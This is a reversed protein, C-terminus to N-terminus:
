KKRNIAGLVILAQGLLYTSMILLRPQPINLESFRSLAIMSDSFIFLIIGIFILYVSVISIRKWLFFATIAMTTIVLSYILIPIQLIGLGDWLYANLFFAYLSLPILPFLLKKYDGKYEFFAAIYFIHTCLFLLLGPLFLKNDPRALMLVTDGGFAFVLGILLYWDFRAAQKRFNMFYFLGLIPMLLPKTAYILNQGLGFEASLNLISLLCYLVFILLYQIPM